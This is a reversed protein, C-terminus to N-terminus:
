VRSSRLSAPALPGLARVAEASQFRERMQHTPLVVSFTQRRPEPKGPWRTAVTARSCLAPPTCSCRRIVSAERRAAAWEAREAARLLYNLASDSLEANVSHHALLDLITEIRDGATHELFKVIHAHLRRRESRCCATRWRRSLTTNSPTSVNAASARPLPWPAAQGDSRALITREFEAILHSKGIGAEGLVSILHPRQERLVRDLAGTLVELEAARGHFPTDRLTRVRPPLGVDLAEWATFSNPWDPRQVPPSQRYRVHQRTDDYTQAGVLVASASVAGALADAVSPPAGLVRYGLAVERDKLSALVEGTEIGVRAQIPADRTAPPLPLPCDRIALGARVAREADDEHAVPVGFVALITEGTSRLVTGDLQRIEKSIRELCREALLHLDEPDLRQALGAFGGLQVALV